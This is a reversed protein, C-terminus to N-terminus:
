TDVGNGWETGGLQEGQLRGEAAGDRLGLELLEGVLPEPLPEFDERREALVEVGDHEVHERDDVLVPPHLFEDAANELLPLALRLHHLEALSVSLKDERRPGGVG